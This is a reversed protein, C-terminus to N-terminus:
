FLLTQERQVTNKAGARITHTYCVPSPNRTEKVKYFRSASFAM